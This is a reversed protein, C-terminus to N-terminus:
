NISDICKTQHHEGEAKTQDYPAHPFLPLGEPVEKVTEIFGDHPQDSYDHPLHWSLHFPYVTSGRLELNIIANMQEEPIGGNTDQKQNGTLDYLHVVNCGHTALQSHVCNSYNTAQKYM